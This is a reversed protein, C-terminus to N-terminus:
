EKKNELVSHNDKIDPSLKVNEGIIKKIRRLRKEDDSGMTKGVLKFYEEMKKLDRDYDPNQKVWESIIKIQKMTVKEISKDLEEHEDDKEWKNEKKIYFQLRKQDSCHIPRETVDM